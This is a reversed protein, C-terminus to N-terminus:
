GSDKEDQKVLIPVTAWCGMEDVWIRFDKCRIHTHDKDVLFSKKEDQYYGVVKSGTLIVVTAGHKITITNGGGDIDIFTSSEKKLLPRQGEAKKKQGGSQQSGGGRTTPQSSQQSDDDVQVLQLRIKNKKADTSLYAGPKLGSKEDGGAFQLQINKDAQHYLAVDGERGGHDQKSGEENELMLQHRPDQLNQVSPDSRSGNAYSTLGIASKGKPQDDDEFAGAGAKDGVGGGGDSSKAQSQQGGKDEEEDQKAPWYAFGYPQVIPVGKPSDNRGADLDATPFITNHSVKRTTARSSSGLKASHAGSGVTERRM